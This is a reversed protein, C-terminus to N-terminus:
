RRGVEKCKEGEQKGVLKRRGKGERGRREKVLKEREKWCSRM